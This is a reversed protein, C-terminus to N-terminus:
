IFRVLIKPNSSIPLMLKLCCTLEDRTRTVIEFGGSEELQRAIASGVMGRHGAV